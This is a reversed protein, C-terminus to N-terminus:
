PEDLTFEVPVRVSSAVPKGGEIAPEFTWGRVAEVAARDLDRSRSSTEVSVDSPRGNADVQVLLVVTGEERNRAAAPPYSPEGPSVPAAARDAPRAPATPTTRQPESADPTPEPSPATGDGITPADPLPADTTTDRQSLFYWGVAVLAILLLIWLLPSSRKEEAVPESPPPLDQPPRPDHPRQIPDSM